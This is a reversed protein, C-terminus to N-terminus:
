EPEGPGELEECEACVWDRGAAGAASLEAPIMTVGCAPCIPPEDDAAAM